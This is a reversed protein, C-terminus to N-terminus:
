KAIVIVDRLESYHSRFIYNTSSGRIVPFRREQYDFSAIELAVGPDRAIVEYISQTWLRPGTLSLGAEKASSVRVGAFSRAQEVINALMRGLIPHRPPSMICWQVILFPELRVDAYRDNISLPLPNREYSLVPGRAGELFNSLPQTLAKSVDIYVGGEIWLAAYRFIDARMPGLITREFLDLIPEGAFHKRMFSAAAEDDLYNFQFDPNLSRFEQVARWHSAGLKSSPGTSWVKPPIVSTWTPKTVQARDRLSRMPFDRAIVAKAFARLRAKGSNVISM